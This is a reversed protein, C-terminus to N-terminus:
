NFNPQSKIFYDMWFSDSKRKTHLNPLSLKSNTLQDLEEVFRIYKPSANYNFSYTTEDLDEVHAVLKTGNNQALLQYRFKLHVRAKM